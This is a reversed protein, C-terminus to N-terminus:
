KVSVSLTQFEGGGGGGERGPLSSEFGLEIIGMRPKERFDTTSGGARM